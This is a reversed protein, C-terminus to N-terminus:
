LRFTFTKPAFSEHSHTQSSQSPHKGEELACLCFLLLKFMEIIWFEGALSSTPAFKGIQM